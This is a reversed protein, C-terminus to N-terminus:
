RRMAKLLFVAPVYAWGAFIGACVNFGELGEPLFMFTALATVAWYFFLLYLIM